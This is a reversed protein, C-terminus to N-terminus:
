TNHLHHSLPTPEVVRCWFIVVKNLSDYIFLFFPRDLKVVKQPMMRFMFAATAAAAETGKETIKLVTKHQLTDLKMDKWNPSIGAFDKNEEGSFVKKMGMDALVPALNTSFEMKMRPLQVEGYVLDMKEFAAEWDLEVLKQEVKTYAEEGTEHPLIIFMHAESIEENRVDHEYPLSLMDFGNEEDSVYPFDMSASMLTLSIYKNFSQFEAEIGVFDPPDFLFEYEWSGNFYLANCLVFKSTEPLPETFMNQIVNKTKSSIFRNMLRMMTQPRNTFDLHVLDTQAGYTKGLNSTFRPNLPFGEQVFIANSTIVTVGIDKDMSELIKAFQSHVLGTYRPYGLAKRMEAETEGTVGLLIMNLTVLISIPSFLSNGTGAEHVQRKIIERTFNWVSEAGSYPKPPALPAAFATRTMFMSGLQFREEVETINSIDLVQQMLPDILIPKQTTEPKPSTTLIHEPFEVKQPGGFFSGRTMFTSEQQKRYLMRARVKEWDSPFTFANVGM